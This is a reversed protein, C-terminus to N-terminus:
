SKDKKQSQMWTVLERYDSYYDERGNQKQELIPQVTNWIRTDLFGHSLEYVTKRDYINNNVGVAFHEIRALYKSINRYEDKEHNEVIYRIQKENYEYLLDLAQEQLTNYADLTDRKKDHIVNWVFTYISFGAALFALVASGISIWLSISDM